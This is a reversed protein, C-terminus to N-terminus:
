KSSTIFLSDQCTECLFIDSFDIEEKITNCTLCDVISTEEYLKSNM